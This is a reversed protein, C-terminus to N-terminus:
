IIGGVEATVDFSNLIFTAGDSAVRLRIAACMGIGAVGTWSRTVPNGGNWVDVDWEADDWLSQAISTATPSSTPDDEAYDVNLDLLFGPSGNSSFIPRIMQFRKLQGRSKYYNFATKIDGTIASGNDQFGTDAKWVTGSNGGFYLEENFVAWCGGNLGTFRCWAGTLTNMVFQVQTSGETQPINFIAMNGRPYAIGQWGFNSGFTRASTKFLDSIKDTIAARASVSRDLSLMRTLSVVGDQTIIALDGGTKITSRDGIPAGLRYVGVIAWSSAQSPDTGQYIAVEGLSSIFALFDDPGSGGDRTWSAIARLKGGLQFLSGLEFATADGSIAETALYWAKTTDKQVFWLRKKHLCVNTLTSSTVNNITPTTWSSGDYNRVSDAGNCIVLFNGGSTTQMAHQWKGNSLSSVAAAGVAGASTVEYIASSNAAFLKRSAPGAWEMLSTIAGSIGTAHSEYGRRLSVYSPEPFFNDLTIADREDMDAFEDRANLGGVPPPVSFGKAVPRRRANSMLPQLM